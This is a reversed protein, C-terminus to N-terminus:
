GHLCEIGEVQCCRVGLGTCDEGFQMEGLSEAGREGLIGEEGRGFRSRVCGSGTGEDTETERVGRTRSRLM